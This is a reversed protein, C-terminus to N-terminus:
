NAIEIKTENWAGFIGYGGTINSFLFKPEFFAYEFNWPVISTEWFWYYNESVKRMSVIFKEFRVEQSEGNLRLWRSEQFEIRVPFVEGDFCSDEIIISNYDTYFVCPINGIGTDGSLASRVTILGVSPHFAQILLEFYDQKGKPDDIAIMAEYGPGSNSLVNDKKTYSFDALPFIDPIKEPGAVIPPLGPAYIELHYENGPEPLLESQYNGNGLDTLEESYESNVFLLVNAGNIEVQESVTGSPAQSRSLNIKLQESNKLVGNVVLKDGEYNLDYDEILSCGTFLLLMSLKLLRNEKFISVM